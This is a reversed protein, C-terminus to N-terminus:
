RKLGVLTKGVSNQKGWKLLDLRGSYRKKESESLQIRLKSWEAYLANQIGPIM